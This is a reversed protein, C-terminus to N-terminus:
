NTSGNKVIASWQETKEAKFGSLLNSEGEIELGEGVETIVKADIYWVIAIQQRRTINTLRCFMKLDLPPYVKYTITM